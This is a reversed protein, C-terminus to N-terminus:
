VRQYNDQIREIDDEGLYDGTQVEILSITKNTKNTLRHLIGVPIYTSQNASLEKEEEGIQVTAIGDVVIWHEARKFHRQLSLASNPNVVIRKVKFYDGEDLTEYYGWPRFVKRHFLAEPYKLQRLKEVLPKIEQSANLATVLVADPTEIVALDAVHNTVVLRSTSLVLTRKTRETLVRGRILNQNHDKPSTKFVSKWSGLDSWFGAFPVVSLPIKKQVCHEMVAFDISESPVALYAARSTSWESESLSLKEKFAAICASAIDPRCKKLADLWISAKLIFIGANWLYRGSELYKQADELCPKEVFQVVKQPINAQTIQSTEIYGYGTEPANPQIGLLVIQNNTALPLAALLAIQLKKDDIAQDSPLVILIDDPSAALAAMTLAPATNRANPELFVLPTSGLDIIQNKIIFRHNDSAVVVPPKMEYQPFSHVRHM